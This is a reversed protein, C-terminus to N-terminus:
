STAEATEGHAEVAEEGLDQDQIGAFAAYCTAALCVAWPALVGWVVWSPIGGILEPSVEQRYGFTLSYGVTWVCCSIWLGAVWLAERRTRALASEKNAAM